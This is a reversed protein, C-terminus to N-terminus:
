FDSLYQVEVGVGYLPAENEADLRVCRRVKAVSHSRFLMCGEPEGDGLSFHPPQNRAKDADRDSGDLSRLVVFTGPRFDWESEFYIGSGSFNRLTVVQEANGHVFSCHMGVDKVCRPQRRREGSHDVIGNKGRAM